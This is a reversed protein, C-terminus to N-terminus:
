YGGSGRINGGWNRLGRSGASVMFPQKGLPNTQTAQAQLKVRAAALDHLWKIQADFDDKFGRDPSEPNYGRQLIMKYRALAVNCEILQDDYPPSLPLSLNPNAAIYGDMKAAAQNLFTQQQDNSQALDGTFYAVPLGTMPLDAVQAYSRIPVVM